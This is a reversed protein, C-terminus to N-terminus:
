PKEMWVAGHPHGDVGTWLIEKELAFANCAEKVDPVMSYDDAVLTGGASLLGWGLALDKKVAGKSHDGDVYVWDFHGRHFAPVQDPMQSNCQCFRWRMLLGLREIRERAEVCPRIDLSVLSGWPAALLFNAASQGTETGIELGRRPRRLRVLDFYAKGYGASM